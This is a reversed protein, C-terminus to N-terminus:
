CYWCNDYKRWIFKQDNFEFPVSISDITTGAIESVILRDYNEHSMIRGDAYADKSSTFTAESASVISGLSLAYKTNNTDQKVVAFYVGSVPFYITEYEDTSGSTFHYDSLFGASNYLLLAAKNIVTTENGADDTIIEEYDEVSLTIQLAIM